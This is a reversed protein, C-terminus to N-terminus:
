SEHSLMRHNGTCALSPSAIDASKSWVNSTETNRYESRLQRIMNETVMLYVSEETEGKGQLGSHWVEKLTKYDRPRSDM